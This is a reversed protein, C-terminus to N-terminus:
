GQSGIVRGDKGSVIITKPRAAHDYPDGAKKPQVTVIEDDTNEEAGPNGSGSAPSDAADEDGASEGLYKQRLEDISPAVSDAEAGPAKDVGSDGRSVVTYGPLDRKVIKDLEKKSLRAM